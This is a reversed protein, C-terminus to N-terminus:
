TTCHYRYVGDEMKRRGDCVEMECKQCMWRDVSCIFAESIDHDRIIDITHGSFLTITGNRDRRRLFVPTQKGARSDIRIYKGGGGIVRLFQHGVGRCWMMLVM